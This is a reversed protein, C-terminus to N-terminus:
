SAKEEMEKGPMEMLDVMAEAKGLRFDKSRNLAELLGTEPAAAVKWWREEFDGGPMVVADRAVDLMRAREVAFSYRFMEELMDRIRAAEQTSRRELGALVANKLVTCRQLGEDSPASAQPSIKQAPWILKFSRNPNFVLNLADLLFTKIQDPDTTAEASVHCNPAHQTSAAQAPGKKLHKSTIYAIASELGAIVAAADSDAKALATRYATPDSM